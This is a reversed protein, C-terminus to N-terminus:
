RFSQINKIDETHLQSVVPVMSGDNGHSRIVPSHWHLGPTVPRRQSSHSKMYVWKPGLPQTLLYGQPHLASELSADLWHSVANDLLATGWQSPAFRSEAKPHKPNNPLFSFIIDTYLDDKWICPNGNYLYSPRLVSRRIKIIPIGTSTTNRISFGISEVGTTCLFICEYKTIQRLNIHFLPRQRPQCM